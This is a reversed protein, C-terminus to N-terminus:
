SKAASGLKQELRRAAEVPMVVVPHSLLDYINLQGVFTAGATPLNRTSLYVNRDLDPTVILARETLGLNQLLEASQKTRPESFTLDQLLRVGNERVRQSLVCRMALRRMKVPLDQRYDRPHPGFVVGGGRWHPARTTGQRARGTGKQRWPKKGGGRVQGRTLTNATGVRRNAQQRVVAQHVLGENMPEGFVAEDLEAQGVVDGALNYVPVEL